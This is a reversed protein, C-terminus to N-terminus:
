FKYLRTTEWSDGLEGQLKRSKKPNLFEPFELGFHLKQFNELLANRFFSM